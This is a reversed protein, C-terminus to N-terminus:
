YIPYRAASDPLYLGETKKPVSYVLSLVSGPILVDGKYMLVNNMASDSAIVGVFRWNEATLIGKENLTGVDSPLYTKGIGDSLIIKNFGFSANRAYFEYSLKRVSDGKFSLVYLVSDKGAVITKDPTKLSDTKLVGVLDGYSTKIPLQLKNEKCSFLGQLIFVLIILAINKM